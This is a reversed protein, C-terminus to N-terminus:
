ATNGAGGFENIAANRDTTSPTVGALFFLTDVFHDPTLTAPYATTFRARTVFDQAFAVKNSELQAQWNGVGVVVGKGIQQTDPLFENLKLPVPADPMNGYASKYFRYVLYGTEQFEISLFFAASVNARKVDICQQNAGCSTIENTWFGFGPADPERNLFDIYHQHVFFDAQDIANPGTVSDNDTITVTTTSPSGLVGGAPNSLTVTFTENGEAYADDVLPISITKVTEGPAFSVKGFSASYDCASSAVGNIVNCNSAAANSTAYEVT